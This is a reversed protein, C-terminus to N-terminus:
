YDPSLQLAARAPERNTLRIGIRGSGDFNMVVIEWPVNTTGPPFPGPNTPMMYVIQPASSSGSSPTGWGGVGVNAGCGALLALATIQAWLVM